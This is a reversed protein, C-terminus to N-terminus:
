KIYTLLLALVALSVSLLRQITFTENFYVTAVAIGVIIMFAEWVVFIAGFQSYRFAAAVPIAVTGYLVAGLMLDAPNAFGSRKLYIDAVLTIAVGLFVLTFFVFLKM